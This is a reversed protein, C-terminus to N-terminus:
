LPREDGLFFAAVTGPGCHCAIIPGIDFIRIQANPYIKELRAQLKLAVDECDSHSIFLKHGYCLGDKIHTAIEAETRALANSVSMVKNYAVIKGQRNLRMIPCLKLINGILAAPGSVRGSKRFYTLTTTFFQHHIKAKNKHTWEAIEDLSKGQDRLDLAFDVLLGYGACSCTSDIVTVRNGGEANIIDAARIANFVSQSMGSGFAIHLVNGDALHQRFFEEYREASIQSTTPRKSDIQAYFEALSQKTNQMTDIHETNDTFYSYHITPCSRDLMYQLPMDVTSECTITFM